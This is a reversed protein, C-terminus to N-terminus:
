KTDAVTEPAEILSPLFRASADSITKGATPAARKGSPKSDTSDGKAADASIAERRIKTLKLDYEVNGDSFSEENASDSLRLTVFQCNQSDNCTGEGDATFTSDSIFFTASKADSAVGMFVIVPTNSDPLLTLPEVSKMTKPKGAVGFEFDATMKFWHTGPSSPSGSAPTNPTSSPVTPSSGGSGGGSSGGVPTGGSNNSGQSGSGGASSGGSGSGSGAATATPDKKLDALPKFPNRQSFTQLKSGHTPSSDV